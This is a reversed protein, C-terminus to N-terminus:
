RYGLVGMATSSNNWRRESEVVCGNSMENEGVGCCAVMAWVGGNPVVDIDSPGRRGGLDVLRVSFVNEVSDSGICVVVKLSMFVTFKSKHVLGGCGICREDTTILDDAFEISFFMTSMGKVMSGQARKPGINCANRM